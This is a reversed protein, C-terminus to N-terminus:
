LKPLETCHPKFDDPSTWLKKKLVIDFWCATEKPPQNEIFTLPIPSLGGLTDSKVSWLGALLSESTPPETLHQGARELLKAAVWGVSLASGYSSQPITSGYRRMVQQFEDTAPTGSQFHPFANAASMLGDLNPNDGQDDRVGVGPEALAPHFDQRVCSNAIRAASNPDTVLLLTQVGANRAALCEATFDPQAVSAKASYVYEFGFAKASARVYRDDSCAAVEACFIAGLKTKGAPIQLHAATATMMYSHANGSSAQPFYMPSTFPWGGEGSSIGVVPVRKQTIYPVSAEGTLVEANALFAVVGNREVAEQVQARHRASDGGDDFVILQILHGNLGGNDSNVYKVWLQAAQLIPVVANGIPGSYTGVTALRLPSKKGDLVRPGSGGKESPAGDGVVAPPGASPGAPAATKGATKEGAAVAKSSGSPSTSASSAARGRDASSGGASRAASPGESSTALPSEGAAVASGDPVGATPVSM